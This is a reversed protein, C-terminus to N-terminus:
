LHDALATNAKVHNWGGTSMPNAPDMAFKNNVNYMAVYQYSSRVIDEVQADSLEIAQQEEAEQMCGTVGILAILLAILHTNRLKM